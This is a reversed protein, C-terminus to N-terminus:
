AKVMQLGGGKQKLKSTSSKIAFSLHDWLRRWQRTLWSVDNGAWMGLGKKEARNEAALLKKYYKMYVPDKELEFDLSSVSAFGLSVLDVGVNGCKTKATVICSVSEPNLKLLTFRVPTGVVVHQLWSVGNNLVDVSSIHVPLCNSSSRRLQWAVVPYHDVLLLPPSSGVSTEVRVVKGSLTMHKELFSSPIERPSTFKKLPRVSRLAVALGVFAISYIGYQVGRINKEMYSTFNEFWHREDDM